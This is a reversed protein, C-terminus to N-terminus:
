ADQLSDAMKKGSKESLYFRLWLMVCFLAMAAVHIYIGAGSLPELGIAGQEALLDVLEGLIWISIFLSIQFQFSKIRGTKLSLWTFIGLAIVLLVLTIGETPFSGDVTM